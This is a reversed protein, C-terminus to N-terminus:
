EGEAEKAYDALRAKLHLAADQDADPTLPSMIMKRVVRAEEPSLVQPSDAPIVEVQEADPFRGERWPGVERSELEPPRPGGNEEWDRDHEGLEQLAAQVDLFPGYIGDHANVRYERENM